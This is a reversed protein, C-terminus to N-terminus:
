QALLRTIAEILGKLSVPKTMYENAGAKLCRERDGPMALATLAIIPTRMFDPMARLRRTAELGDIEPMQIDMLILDPHAEGVMTLAERGNRAVSVQYGKDELYESIAAINFENDEVLLIRSGTPTAIMPQAVMPVEAPPPDASPKAHTLEPPHYPLAITFRSGKGVESEVTISGGHLETLSHVLALGLGTGEHQRSLSSDLQTFPKFLRGMDDVAIGIGTDQVAFRVVGATPDVEVELSVRGKAPTFKVANSLLNVLMQKLRKPDAQVTALQNNLQFALMLAKKGAVEKVFQLSAQCVEVVMVTEIQIDSRGAEVKSLDLIDNILALLHRGSAEISRLAAQQRENLPGRVQELLGESLALIANLPTRLEHSMNALFEDKTRAARELETNARRLTEAVHKETTIDRMSALYHQRGRIILGFVRAAVVRIEGNFQKLSMEAAAFRNRSSLHQAIAVGLQVIQERPILDMSDLTRGILVDSAYGTILEFARNMQVIRVSDNLLIVADPSEEFLLRTQEESERLALEAQRRMTNNFVASRSASYTGHEDYVATASILVPISTGDKRLLDMELDRIWGQQKFVPFVAEFADQSVPTFFDTISHGIIEERTYGLWNLHTQNVMIVIGNVDLSHYGIPANEYLDQVEATRQRVREELTRNLELLGQQAMKLDHIDTSNSLVYIVRGTEDHIPQMSTRYWRSEGQIVGQWETVIERDEQIVKRLRELQRDAVQPPFLQQLTKGIFDSPSSGLQQAAESNIFLFTGKTDMTHVASDLSEMLGRYQEERLRLALETRKRQTIDLHTGSMRVPKDDADWEVVKGRDVVWIWDGNKHQLRAECEYFESKRSFHEALLRNSTALDDPHSKGVWTQINMPALEQLSYGIMEAWRDNFVAEGTQVYWDWMGMNAGKLALEVRLQSERLKEETQKRETIDIGVSQFEIARGEIDFIPTDIWQYHRMSGDEVTVPHEYFVTHPNRALEQYFAATDARTAEPLLNLWQQQATEEQLGFITRYKENTFILTTDPLWRCLSVDLAGVLTRYLGESQRLSDEAQRRDTIDHIISFLVQKEQLFIPSSYVEVMRETGNALKHPFEFYTREEHLAKLREAKVQAPLLMNIDSILMTCLQAKTYGYFRVAAQNADIIQGTQPEILLMIAGHHEFMLHFREESERLAEVTKDQQQTDSRSQQWWVLGLGVGVAAILAGFLVVTQLLRTAPAIAVPAFYTLYGVSAISLALVTFVSGLTIRARKKQAIYQNM